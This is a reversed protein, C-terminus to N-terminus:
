GDGTQGDGTQGDGTQDGGCQDGTRNGGPTGLENVDQSPQDGPQDLDTDDRHEVPGQEDPSPVTFPTVGNVVTAGVRQVPAPLENAAAASIGGALVGVSVLGIMPPM